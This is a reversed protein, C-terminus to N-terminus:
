PLSYYETINQFYGSLVSCIFYSQYRTTEWAKRHREKTLRFPLMDPFLERQSTVQESNQPLHFVLFHSKFRHNLDKRSFHAYEVAKDWSRFNFGNWLYNTKQQKPKSPTKQKNTKQNKPKKLSYVLNQIICSKNFAWVWNQPLHTTSLM